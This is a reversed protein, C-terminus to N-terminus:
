FLGPEDRRTRDLYAQVQVGSHADIDRGFRLLLNGGSTRRDTGSSAEARGDYVDGQLTWAVADPGGDARFGAQRRSWGDPVASGDATVSHDFRFDRVYARVSTERGLPAGQRAAVGRRRNGATAALLTGTSDKASRTVVNIVGNVANAGWLTGGPGSVVEIREIDEVMVEQVDWFVGSHLPTYVSRGDIMVLLKNASSNNFGRASIAYSNANVRAVQLNPALRLIEPLTTAGSRRIDDRTIVYVAAPADAVREPRRSVSSIEIEGLEEISLRSLSAPVRGAVDFGAAQAAAAHLM